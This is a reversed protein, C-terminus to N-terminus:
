NCLEVFEKFTRRMAKREAKSKKDVDSLGMNHKKHKDAKNQAAVEKKKAVAEPSRDSGEQTKGQLRWHAKMASTLSAKGVGGMTGKDGDGGINRIEGRQEWKDIKESEGAKRRAAKARKGQPTINFRTHSPDAKVKVPDSMTFGHTHADKQAVKYKDKNSFKAVKRELLLAKFLPRM